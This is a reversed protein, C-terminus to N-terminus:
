PLRKLNLLVVGKPQGSRDQQFFDHYIMGTKACAIAGWPFVDGFYKAKMAKRGDDHRLLIPDILNGNVGVPDFAADYDGPQDKSTVFSGDIIVQRCGGRRLNDLARRLGGLLLRRRANWIFAGVFETWEWPHVGLPLYGTSPEFPPMQSVVYINHRAM